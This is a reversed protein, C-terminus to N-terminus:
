RLEIKRAVEFGFGQIRFGSGSIEFGFGSGRFGFGSIHAILTNLLQVICTNLSHRQMQCIAGFGSGPIRLWIAGSGPIRLWGGIGFM